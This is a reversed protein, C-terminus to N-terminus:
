GGAELENLDVLAFFKDRAEKSLSELGHLELDDSYNRLDDWMSGYIWSCFFCARIEECLLCVKFSYFDGESKMSVKHYKDGKRIEAGCEYCKYDKKATPQSESCFEVNNCYDYTELTCKCSM